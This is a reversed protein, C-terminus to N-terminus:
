SAKLNKAKRVKFEKVAGFVGQHLVSGTESDIAWPFTPVRQTALREVTKLFLRKQTHTYVHFNWTRHLYGKSFVM